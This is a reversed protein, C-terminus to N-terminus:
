NFKEEAVTENYKVNSITYIDINDNTDYLVIEKLLYSDKEYNFVVKQYGIGFFSKKKATCVVQYQMNTEKVQLSYNEEKALDECRGQFGYLFINSLSRMMGGDRLRFTGHFMGINIKLRNANVIMYKGNDFLASFRDTAVFYLKGKQVNKKDKKLTTNTLDADFTRLSGNTQRIKQIAAPGQAQVTIAFMVTALILLIKKM